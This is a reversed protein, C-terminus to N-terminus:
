RPQANKRAKVRAILASVRPHKKEAVPEPTEVVAEVVTIDAERELPTAVGTQVSKDPDVVRKVRNANPGEARDKLWAHVTEPKWVPSSGFYHDPEPIDNPTSKGAERNKRARHLLTSLTSTSMGTVGSLETFGYLSPKESM